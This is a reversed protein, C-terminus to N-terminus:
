MDLSPLALDLASENVLERSMALPLSERDDTFIQVHYRARSIAVYFTNENSTMSLTDADIIIRECTQGQSAHVTTCYGYDIALPMKGDLHVTRSGDFILTVDLTEPDIKQVRAMDGNVLGRARDNATIRVLDGEALSRQVSVYSTLQTALAPKWSTLTGDARQLLICSTRREVVRAIEGRRLGVSPLNADALVLDGADYSLTSRAQMATHDKRELFAFNLSRADLNLKSRICRNIESRAHRTGAVVRTASREIAELSVYADAIREFRDKAQQVEIIEKDLLRVAMASRGAVALEVANKLVPNRQRQIQGVVATHMGNKQLQFFPKGAEVSQLQGTDGILVVRAGAAIAEKLITHAQRTSTMGAEDVILLTKAHLKKAQRHTFATITEADIEAAALERSASASPALGKVEYGLKGALDAAIKLLTTKGVGARGQIGIVQNTTLLMGLAAERQGESLGVLDDTLTSRHGSFIPQLRGRTTYEMDLVAQELAQAEQTTYRNGSRILRGDLVAAEVECEIESLIATGVGHEIAARMLSQQSFVSNREGLHAIAHALIAELDPAKVKSMPEPITFDIGASLSLKEWDSRLYDRDISTKKDRTILAILKKDWATAESRELGKKEKLYEEIAASRKSFTKVQGDTIQALEFRGDPHTLRVDYGLSQLERALEARYLAGLLMKNRYIPENDTARWEGNARQTANIMVCHTHLQPDCARSLDHTFKAVLLNSTRERQVKKDVTVRCSALTESFLLARDVAVLHAAILRKDGGILAQLSVSKPASFTGDTGGRRELGPKQLNVGNPLNGDLLSSFTTADVDGVLGLAVAGAGWWATANADNTYYDDAGEYYSAATKSSGVNELSMM